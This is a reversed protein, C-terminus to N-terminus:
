KPVFCEPHVPHWHGGADFRKKGITCYSKREIIRPQKGPPKKEKPCERYYACDVCNKDKVM